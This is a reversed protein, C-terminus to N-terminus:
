ASTLASGHHGSIHDDLVICPLANLEEQVRHRERVIFCTKGVQPMFDLM